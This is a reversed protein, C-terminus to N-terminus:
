SNENYDKKLGDYIFRLNDGHIEELNSVLRKLEGYEKDLEPMNKPMGELEIMRDCYRIYDEIDRQVQQNM